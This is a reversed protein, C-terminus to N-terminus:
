GENPAPINSRIAIPTQNLGWGPAARPPLPASSSILTCGGGKLPKPSLLKSPCFSTTKIKRSCSSSSQCSSNAWPQDEEGFFSLSLSSAVSTLEPHIKRLLFFLLPRRQFPLTLSWSVPVFSSAPSIIIHWMKILTVHICVNVLFSLLHVRLKNMENYAFHWYLFDICVSLELSMHVSTNLPLICIQLKSQFADFVFHTSSHPPVFPCYM